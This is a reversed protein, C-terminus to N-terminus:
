DNASENPVSMPMVFHKYNEYEPIVFMIPSGVGENISIEVKNDDVKSSLIKAIDYLYESKIGANEPKGTIEVGAESRMVIGTEANQVSFEIRPPMGYKTAITVPKERAVSNAHTAIRDLDVSSVTSVSTYEEPILSQYQPFDGSVLGSVITSKHGNAQDFSIVIMSTEKYIDVEIKVTDKNHMRQIHMLVSRPIIVNVEDDIPTEIEMSDLSLRYGDTGVFKAVRGSIDLNMGTLVSRFDTEAIAFVMRKIISILKDPEEFVLKVSGGLEDYVPSVPFNDVNIENFKTHLSKIGYEEINPLEVLVQGNDDTEIDVNVTPLSAILDTFAHGDVFITGTSYINGPMTTSLTTFMDTASIQTTGSEGAEIRISRAALDPHSGAIIPKVTQFAQKINRNLYTAKM